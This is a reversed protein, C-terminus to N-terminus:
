AGANRAVVLLGEGAEHSTRYDMWLALLYFPYLAVAVPGLILTIWPSKRSANLFSKLLKEFRGVLRGQCYQYTVTVFGAKAISDLIARSTYAKQREPTGRSFAARDSILESQHEYVDQYVILHGDDRLSDHVNKLAQSIDDVYQLVTICLVIDAKQQFTVRNLDGVTFTVNRLRRLHQFAACVRINDELEDVGVFTADPYTGAYHFIYDALGCGLDILSFRSGYGTLVRGLARQVNWTRLVTLMELRYVLALLLKILPLRYHNYRPLSRSSDPATNAGIM